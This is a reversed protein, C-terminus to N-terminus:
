RARERHYNTIAAAPVRERKRFLAPLLPVPTWPLYGQKGDSFSRHTGYSTITAALCLYVERLEKHSSFDEIFRARTIENGASQVHEDQFREFRAREVTIGDGLPNVPTRVIHKLDILAGEVRSEM